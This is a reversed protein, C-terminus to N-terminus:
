LKSYYNHHFIYMVNKKSDIIHKHKLDEYDLIHVKSKDSIDCFKCPRGNIPVEQITFEDVDIEHFIVNEM